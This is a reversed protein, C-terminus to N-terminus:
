ECIGDGPLVGQKADLGGNGGALRLSEIDVQVCELLLGVRRVLRRDVRDTVAQARRRFLFEQVAEAFHQTCGHVAGCQDLLRLRIALALLFIGFEGVQHLGVDRLEAIAVQDLDTDIGRQRRARRAVPWEVAKGGVLGDAVEQGEFAGKESQAEVIGQRDVIRHLQQDLMEDVQVLLRNGFGLAVVAFVVCQQLLDEPDM